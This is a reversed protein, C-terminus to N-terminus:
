EWSLGWAKACAKAYETPGFRNQVFGAEIARAGAEIDVGHEPQKACHAKVIRIATTLGYNFNTDDCLAGFCDGKASELAALLDSQETPTM